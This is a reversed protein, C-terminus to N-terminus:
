SISRCFRSLRTQVAEIILRLDNTITGFNSKLLHTIPRDLNPHALLESNRYNRTWTRVLAEPWASLVSTGLIKQAQQFLYSGQPPLANKPLGIESLINNWWHVCYASQARAECEDLSKPDILKWAEQWSIPYFAAPPLVHCDHPQKLTQTLLRPGIEAWAIKRQKSNNAKEYLEGCLPDHPPFKMVGVAAYEESEWGVCRSPISSFHKLCLVDTDIWIGGRQCLLAYRFLDSFAFLDWRGPGRTCTLFDSEPLIENADCLRVGLPVKLQQYSYLEVEHDHKIFSTLCLEEYISLQEGHWFTRITCDRGNLGDMQRRDTRTHQKVVSLVSIASNIVIAQGEFHM